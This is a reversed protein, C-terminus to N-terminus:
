RVRPLERGVYRYDEDPSLAKEMRLDGCVAHLVTLRFTGDDKLTDYAFINGNGRIYRRIIIDRYRIGLGTLRVSRKGVPFVPMFRIM